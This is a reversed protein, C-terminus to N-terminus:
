AGEYDEEPLLPPEESGAHEALVGEEEDPPPAHRERVISFLAALTLASVIVALSVSTPMKYWHDTLMKAGVFVLIMCVAIKLYHFRDIVEALVFYLARLGMIAFINSTLVVFHDKSIALVAPISDVAFVLDASEIVLLVIFLPTAHWIRRGDPGPERVFFRTDRYHDTIPIMRRAIRVFFNKEPSFDDEDDETKLMKIGTYVLFAGFIYETWTFHTLLEIGAFIVIARMVLAGVIGWFLVRHQHHADVKFYNFIVAIVFLNDVSLSKEVLYGAFYETGRPPGKLVYVGVGFLLGLAVWFASWWLADRMSLARAGRNFVGLDLGLLIVLLAFFALWAQLDTLPADGSTLNPPAWAVRM